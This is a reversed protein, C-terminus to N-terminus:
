DMSPVDARVRTEASIPLSLYADEFRDYGYVVQPMVTEDLSRVLEDTVRLEAGSQFYGGVVSPLVVKDWWNQDYPVGEARAYIGICSNLQRDISLGCRRCVFVKAGKLDQNTWGCRSCNKSTLRPSVEEVREGALGAIGRWDTIALRYNFFGRRLLNKKKLAEIVIRQSATRMVRAIEIQQKRTRHLERHSYKRAIRRGKVSKGFRARISGIKASSNRHLEVLKTTDIKVWGTQPSFGDLSDFNFDWGIMPPLDDAMKSDQFIPLHVLEPTITPEGVGFRSIVQPLRFYRKSLDIWVFERPRLTIRLKEGELKCLSQKARAFLRRVEPCIRRREGKVYNKKWSRLIAFATKDASDVWHAAYSWRVLHRTRLERRFQGDSRFTPLLRHQKMSVATNRDELRGKRWQITSWVERILENLLDRYACLLPLFDEKHKHPLTRTRQM